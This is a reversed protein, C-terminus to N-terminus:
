MVRHFLHCVVVHTINQVNLMDREGRRSSLTHFDLIFFSRQGCLSTHPPRLADRRECDYSCGWWSLACPWKVSSGHLTIPSSSSPLPRGRTALSRSSSLIAALHSLILVACQHQTFGRRAHEHCRYKSREWVRPQRVGVGWDHQWVAALIDANQNVERPTQAFLPSLPFMAALSM